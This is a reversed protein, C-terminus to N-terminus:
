LCPDLWGSLKERAPVQSPGSSRSSAVSDMLPSYGDADGQMGQQSDARVLMEDLGELEPPRLEGTFSIILTFNLTPTQVTHSGQRPYSSEALEM